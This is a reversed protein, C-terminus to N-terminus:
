FQQYTRNQHLRLVIQGLSKSIEKNNSTYKYFQKELASDITKDIQNELSQFCLINEMSQVNKKPSIQYLLGVKRITEQLDKIKCHSSTKYFMVISELLKILFQNSESDINSLFSIGVNKCPMSNNKYLVYLSPYIIKVLNKISNLNRKFGLETFAINLSRSLHDQFKKLTDMVSHDTSFNSTLIVQEYETLHKKKFNQRCIFLLDGYCKTFFNDYPDYYVLKSHLHTLILQKKFNPDQEFKTQIWRYLIEKGRRYLIQDVQFDVDCKYFDIFGVNEKYLRSYADKNTLGLGIFLFYYTLHLITPFLKGDFHITHPYLPSIPENNESIVLWSSEEVNSFGKIPNSCYWSSNPLSSVADIVKKETWFTQIHEKVEPCEIKKQGALKLIREELELTVQINTKFKNLTNKEVTKMVLGVLKSRITKDLMFNIFPAYQKQILMALNKPYRFEIDYLDYHDVAKKKFKEYISDVNNMSMADLKDMKGLIEIPLLGIYETIDNGQTIKQSLYEICHYVHYVWYKNFEPLWGYFQKELTQGVINWGYLYPDAGLMFRYKGVLMKKSPCFFIRYKKDINKYQPYSQFFIKYSQDLCNRWLSILDKEFELEFNRKIFYNSSHKKLRHNQIILMKTYIDCIEHENPSLLTQNIQFTDM